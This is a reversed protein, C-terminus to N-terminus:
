LINGIIYNEAMVILSIIPVLQDAPWDQDGPWRGAAVAKFNQNNQLEEFYHDQQPCREEWNKERWIQCLEDGKQLDKNEILYSIWGLFSHM